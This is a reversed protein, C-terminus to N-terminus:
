EPLLSELLGNFISQFKRTLSRSASLDHIEAFVMGNWMLADGAFKGVAPPM